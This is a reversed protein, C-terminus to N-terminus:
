ISFDKNKDAVEELEKGKTLAVQEVITNLISKFDEPTFDEVEIEDPIKPSIIFTKFLGEILEPSLTDSSLSGLDKQLKMSTYPSINKCKIELGSPLKYTHYKAKKYKEIDM